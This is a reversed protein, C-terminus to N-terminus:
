YQSAPIIKLEVAFLSMEGVVKVIHLIGVAEEEQASGSVVVVFYVVSYSLQVEEQQPLPPDIDGTIGVDIRLLLFVPRHDDHGRVIFPLKLACVLAKRVVAPIEDIRGIREKDDSRADFAQAQLWFRFIGNVIPETVAAHM